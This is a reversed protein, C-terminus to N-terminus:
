KKTIKYTSLESVSNVKLIVATKENEASLYYATEDTGNFEIVEKVTYDAYDKAFSRKAKLPLEDISIARSSGIKEGTGNYFAEM